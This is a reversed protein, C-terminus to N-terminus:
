VCRECFLRCDCEPSGDHEGLKEDHLRSLGARAGDSDRHVPCRAYKCACLADYADGIEDASYESAIRAWQEDRALEVLERRARTSAIICVDAWDTADDRGMVTTYRASYRYRLRIKPFDHM